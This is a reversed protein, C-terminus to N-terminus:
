DRGLGLEALLAYEAAFPKERKPRTSRVSVPESIGDANERHRVYGRIPADMPQGSRRRRYHTTCWGSTHARRTCDAHRCRMNRWDRHIGEAYRKGPPVGVRRSLRVRRGTLGGRGPLFHESCICIACSRISSRRPAQLPLEDGHEM